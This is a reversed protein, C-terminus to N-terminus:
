ALVENGPRVYAEITTIQKMGIRAFANLTTHDTEDVAAIIQRFQSRKCLDLLQWLLTDAARPPSGSKLRLPRFIGFEAVTQVGVSGIISGSHRVTLVDLADVDLFGVECASIERAADPAAGRASWLCELFARYDGAVARASLVQFASSDPAPEIVSGMMLMAQRSASFGNQSLIPLWSEDLSAETPVLLSCITGRSAFAATILSLVAAPSADTPLHVDRAANADAIASDADSFFGRAGDLAEESNAIARSLEVAGKRVARILAESTAAGRGGIVPLKM